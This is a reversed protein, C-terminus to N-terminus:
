FGADVHRRRLYAAMHRFMLVRNLKSGGAVCFIGSVEPDRYAGELDSIRAKIPSSLASDCIHVNDALSPVLGLSRLVADANQEDAESYQGYSVLGGLSRSPAVVRVRHGFALKPPIIM